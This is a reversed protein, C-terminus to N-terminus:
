ITPRSPAVIAPEDDPEFRRLASPVIGAAALLTAVGLAVEIQHEPVLGFIAALIAVGTSQGVLRATSQIGSAGGSRSRPASAILMKNNPSQFLGFGLGAIMLRWILDLDSPASPLLALSLLGVAFVALGVAALKGPQLRDALRGAVFAAAATTIPWPTILLGTESASRQLSDHLLFPLCVFALAQAAFSCVSTTASLAFVPRRLLDVPLMPVPLKLQTWVFVAGIVLGGGIQGLSLLLGEAHGLGNVGSIFLGFTAASLVASKVDFRRDTTPTVPLTRLGVILALIGVPVNILFLMQWPAVALILGAITPGAASSVGVVLATNGVARGLMAQPFIFRVLAVNISMIGAAGVGQVVRAAILTELSGSLACGLSALTFIAVGGLYVRRYGVIEGLSAFPLLVMTVALQFGNVIWIADTRAIGFEQTIPPLAINAIATDLVALFLAIAVTLFALSRQPQPLGDQFPM